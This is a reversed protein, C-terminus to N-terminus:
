HSVNQNMKQIQTQNKSNKLVFQIYTYYQSIMDKCSYVEDTNLVTKVPISNNAWLILLYHSIASSFQIIQEDWYAVYICSFCSIILWM